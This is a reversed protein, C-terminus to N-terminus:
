APSNAADRREVSVDLGLSTRSGSDGMIETLYVVSLGEPGRQIRREQRSKTALDTGLVGNRVSTAGWLWLVPSSADRFLAPGIHRIAVAGVRSAM